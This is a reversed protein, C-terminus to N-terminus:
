ATLLRAAALISQSEPSSINGALTTLRPDRRLRELDGDGNRPADDGTPRSRRTLQRRRPPEVGARSARGVRLAVDVVAGYFVYFVELRSVRVGKHLLGFSGGSSAAM